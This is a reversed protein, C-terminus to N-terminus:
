NGAETIFPQLDGAATAIALLGRWVARHALADDIEAQTLLRRAEAVETVPRGLASLVLRM